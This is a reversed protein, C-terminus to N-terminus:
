RDSLSSTDLSYLSNAGSLLSFFLLRIKLSSCHRSPYKELSICIVLLCMFLQEMDNVMLFISSLISIFYWKVGGLHCFGFTLYSTKTLHASNLVRVNQHHSHSIPITQSNRLNSMFNGLQGLLKVGLHIDQLIFVHGCM